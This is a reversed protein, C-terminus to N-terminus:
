GLTGGAPLLSLSTPTSIFDALIMYRTVTHYKVTFRLLIQQIVPLFVATLKAINSAPFSHFIIRRIQYVSM